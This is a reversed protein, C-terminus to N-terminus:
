GLDVQVEDGEVRLPYVKVSEAVPYEAHGTEVNFTWSHWPCVVANGELWGQGLPGQRHPCLNDIASLEGEVNALCVMTGGADAEAVEGQKPAEALACVRVWRAM